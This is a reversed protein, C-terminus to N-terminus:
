AAAEAFLDAQDVALRDGGRALRYTVNWKGSFPNLRAEDKAVAGAKELEDLRGCASAIEIGVEKAIERRTLPHRAQTLVALVRLRQSSASGDARIELYANDRTRSM